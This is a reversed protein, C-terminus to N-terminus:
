VNIYWSKFPILIKLNSHLYDFLVMQDDTQPVTQLVLTTLVM